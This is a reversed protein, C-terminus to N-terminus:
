FCLQQGLLAAVLTLACSSHQTQLWAYTLEPLLRKGIEPRVRTCLNANFGKSIRAIAELAQQILLTPAPRGAAAGPSTTAAALSTEIQVLVCRDNVCSINHDLLAQDLSISQYSHLSKLCVRVELCLYHVM